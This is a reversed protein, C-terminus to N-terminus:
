DNQGTDITTLDSLVLGYGDPNGWLALPHVFHRDM